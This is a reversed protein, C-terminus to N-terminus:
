QQSQLRTRIDTLIEHYRWAAPSNPEQKHDPKLVLNGTSLLVNRVELNQKVKEQTAIAILQYHEGPEAPRDAIQRGEFTVWDIAMTRMNEEALGGAHKAEFGTMQAVEQRSYKWQLGPFVARPDNDDEPYLMMQWFGELSAYRNGRFTFPTPAFNSLLGLEHRKSLIVEGPGAAQPLIEWEPSGEESVPAWWHSPYPARESSDAAPTEGPAAAAALTVSDGEAAASEDLEARAIAEARAAAARVAAAQAAMAEAQMAAARARMVMWTTVAGGAVLLVVLLLLCIVLVPVVDFRDREDRHPM